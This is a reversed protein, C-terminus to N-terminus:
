LSSGVELIIGIVNLFSEFLFLYPIVKSKWVGGVVEVCWRRSGCVM